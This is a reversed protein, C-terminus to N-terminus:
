PAGAIVLRGPETFVLQRSAEPAVRVAEDPALEVPDGEVELRASGELLLYVEEHGEEAHDHHKGQWGADADVVTVGLQDLDLPERLFHMGPALPDVDTYKRKTFSMADPREGEMGM